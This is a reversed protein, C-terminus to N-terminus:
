FHIVLQLENCLSKFLYQENYEVEFKQLFGRYEELFTTKKHHLEQNEIYAIVNSSDSKGHSFVGYGEQWEFRQKTFNKENVWKSTNTKIERILDAVSQSPKIGMYIHIHDPMGNIALLKHQKRQIIGTAYKFLENM